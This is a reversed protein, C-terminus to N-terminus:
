RLSVEAVKDKYDEKPDSGLLMRIGAFLSNENLWIEASDADLRILQLKPDDQRGRVLRRHLSEL